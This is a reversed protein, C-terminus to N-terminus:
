ATTVTALVGVYRRCYYFLGDPRTQGTYIQHFYKNAREEGDTNRRCLRCGAPERSARTPREPSEARSRRTTTSRAVLPALQATLTQRSFRRARRCHRSSVCASRTSKQHFIQSKRGMALNARLFALNYPSILRGISPEFIQHFIQWTEM